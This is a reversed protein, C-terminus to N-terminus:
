GIPKASTAARVPVLIQLVKLNKVGRWTDTHTVRKNVEGRLVAALVKPHQVPQGIREHRASYTVMGNPSVLGGGVAGPVVLNRRLLADPAQRRPPSVPGAFHSLRPHSRLNMVAVARAQNEVTRAARNEVERNVLWSIVLGAGLLVLGTYLAFRLRLRPKPETMGLTRADDM